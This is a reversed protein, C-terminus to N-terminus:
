YYKRMNAYLLKKSHLQFCGPIHNVIKKTKSALQQPIQPFKKAALSGFVPDSIKKSIKM